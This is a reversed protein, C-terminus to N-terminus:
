CVRKQNLIQAWILHSGSAGIQIKSKKKAASVLSDSQTAWLLAIKSTQQILTVVNVQLTSAIPTEETECYHIQIQRLWLLTEIGDRCSPDCNSVADPSWVTLLAVDGILKHLEDYNWSIKVQIKAYDWKSQEVTDPLSISRLFYSIGQRATLACPCHSTATMDNKWDQNTNYLKIKNLIAEHM